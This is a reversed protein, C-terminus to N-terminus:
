KWSDLQRALKTEEHKHMRDGVKRHEVKSKFGGLRNYQRFWQESIFRYLKTDRNGSKRLNKRSKVLIKNLVREHLSIKPTHNADMAIVFPAGRGERIHHAIRQAQIRKRFDSRSEGDKPKYTLPEDSNAIKLALANRQIQEALNPYKPKPMEVNNTIADVAKTPDTSPKGDLGFTVADGILPDHDTFPDTM